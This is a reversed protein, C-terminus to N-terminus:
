KTLAYLCLDEIKGKRIIAKKLLAERMFGSKELVRQSGVNAPHTKAEIRVVDLEQFGRQVAIQVAQTMYGHGWYKKASVYGLEAICRFDGSKKELTISGIVEGDVVIAQFWPHTKVVNEFFEEAEQRSRYTEWRLHRTVDPDTALIMFADLDTITLPRLSILNDKQKQM